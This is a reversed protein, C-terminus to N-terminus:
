TPHHPPLIKINSNAISNHLTRGRTNTSFCGWSSHKANLDGAVIYHKGLSEFYNIFNNLIIKPGPPCYTSSLILNIHKNVSVLISTAQLYTESIIPLSSHILDNKVLILSGAHATTDPHNSQYVKYGLIKISKLPTLHSESIM